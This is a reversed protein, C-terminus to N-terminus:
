SKRKLDVDNKHLSYLTNKDIEYLSKANYFVLIAETLTIGKRKAIRRINRRLHKNTKKMIIYKCLLPRGKPM